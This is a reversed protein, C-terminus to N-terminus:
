VAASTEPVAPIVPIPHAAPSSPIAYMEKLASFLLERVVADFEDRLHTPIVEYYHHKVPGDKGPSITCIYTRPDRKSPTPSSGPAASTESIVYQANFRKAANDASREAAEKSVLPSNPEEGIAIRADRSYPIVMANLYNSSDMFTLAPSIRASLEIVALKKGLNGEQIMQDSLGSSRIAYRVIGEHLVNLAILEAQHTKTYNNAIRKDMLAEALTKEDYPSHGKSNKAWGKLYERATDLFMARTDSALNQACLKWEVFLRELEKQHASFFCSALIGNGLYRAHHTIVPTLDASARQAM